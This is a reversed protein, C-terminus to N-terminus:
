SLRIAMSVGLQGCAMQLPRSSGALQPFSRGWGEGAVQTQGPPSGRHLPSGGNEM